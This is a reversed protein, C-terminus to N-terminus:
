RLGFAAVTGADGKTGAPLPLAWPQKEHMRSIAFWSTEIKEILRQNERLRTTKGEPRRAGQRDAGTWIRKKVKV